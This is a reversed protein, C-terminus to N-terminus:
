VPDMQGPNALAAGRKSLDDAIPNLDRSVWEFDLQWGARKMEAVKLGTKVAWSRYLGKGIKYRGLMQEIVLQSDGLILVPGIPRNRRSQESELGYLGHLLGAYEAVNNSMEPGHGVCGYWQQVPRWVPGNPTDHRLMIVYGFGAWGGPNGGQISGDFNLVTPHSSPLM